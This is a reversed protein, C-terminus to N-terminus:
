CTEEHPCNFQERSPSRRFPAATTYDNGADAAMSGIKNKTVAKNKQHHCM